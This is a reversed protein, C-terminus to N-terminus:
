PTLQEKKRRVSEMAIQSQNLFPTLFTVNGGGCRTCRSGVKKQHVKLVQQGRSGANTATATAGRATLLEQPHNDAVVKTNRKSGTTGM